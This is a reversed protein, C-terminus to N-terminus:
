VLYDKLMTVRVRDKIPALKQRWAADNTVLHGVQAIIGTAIILADPAKFGHTARLTAAEQAVALNIALLSLHPWNVLFDHVTAAHTPGHKLPLVLLEMATVPSVVGANTGPRILEDLLCTAVEHTPDTANFYAVLVSTDILVRHGDLRKTFSRRNVGM